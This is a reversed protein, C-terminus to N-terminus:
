VNLRRRKGKRVDDWYKVSRAKNAIGLPSDSVPIRPHKILYACYFCSDPNRMNHISTTDDSHGCPRVFISM